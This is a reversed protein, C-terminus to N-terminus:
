KTLAMKLDEKLLPFKNVESKTIESRVKHIKLFIELHISEWIIYKNVREQISMRLLTNKHIYYILSSYSLLELYEKKKLELYEQARLRGGDRGETEM